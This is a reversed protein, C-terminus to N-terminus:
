ECENAGRQCVTVLKGYIIKIWIGRVIMLIICWIWIGIALYPLPMGVDLEPILTLDFIFGTYVMFGLQFLGNCIGHLIIDFVFDLVKMMM